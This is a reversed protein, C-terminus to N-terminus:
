TLGLIKRVKDDPEKSVSDSKDKSQPDEPPHQDTAQSSSHNIVPLVPAPAQKRKFKERVIAGTNSLLLRVMDKKIAQALDYWSWTKNNYEVDGLRLTVGEIDEINSADGRRGKYSVCHHSSPILITIFSRSTQARAKMEEIDTINLNSHCLLYTLPQPSRRKSSITKTSQAPVSNISTSSLNQNGQVDGTSETVLSRLSSGIRKKEKSGLAGTPNNNAQTSNSEDGHVSGRDPFLFGWLKKDIDYTLQFETPQINIEVREIISIGGVPALQRVFLRIHPPRDPDQINYTLIQTASSALPQCFHEYYANKCVNKVHLGQVQISFDISADEYHVFSVNAELLRSVLMPTYVDHDTPRSPDNSRDEDLLNWTIQPIYLILRMSAPISTSFSSVSPMSLTAAPQLRSKNYTDQKKSNSPVPNMSFPLAAKAVIAKSCDQMWIWNNSSSLLM